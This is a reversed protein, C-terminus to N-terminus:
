FMQLHFITTTRIRNKKLWSKLKNVAKKEFYHFVLKQYSKYKKSQRRRNYTELVDLKIFLYFFDHIPSLFNIQM